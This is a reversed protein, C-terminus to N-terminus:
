GQWTGSYNGEANAGSHNHNSMLSDRGLIYVPAGTSGPCTCTNYTYKTQEDTVFYRHMWQGISVQKTCGHPHSVIIAIKHKELTKSYKDNVKWDLAEYTDMTNQLKDILSLDHTVCSFVCRDGAVDSRVIEIGELNVLPSQSSDFGIRCTTHRAESDDYVVLAATVVHCEGWVKIPNSQQCSYCPCTKNDCKNYKRIEEVWGSGTRMIHSKRENYFPYPVDSDPYFQPRDPSTYTVDIRVTLEALAKITNCIDEDQYGEPLHTENFSTIPIFKKHDPNKKCEPRYKSLEGREVTPKSARKPKRNKEARTTDAM